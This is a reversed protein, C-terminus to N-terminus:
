AGVEEGSTTLLPCARDHRLYVLGEKLLAVGRAECHICEAVPAFTALDVGIRLHGVTPGMRLLNPENARELVRSISACEKSDEPRRSGDKLPLADPEVVGGLVAGVFLTLLENPGVVDAQMELERLEQFTYVQCQQAPPSTGSDAFGDADSHAKQTTEATKKMM